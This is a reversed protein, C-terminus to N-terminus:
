LRTRSWRGVFTDMAELVLGRVATEFNGREEDAAAALAAQCAGIHDCAGGPSM